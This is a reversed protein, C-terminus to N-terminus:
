IPSAFRHYTHELELHIIIQAHSESYKASPGESIRGNVVTSTNKEAKLFGYSSRKLKKSIMRQGDHRFRPESQTGIFRAFDLVPEEPSACKSRDSGTTNRRTQADTSLRISERSAAM